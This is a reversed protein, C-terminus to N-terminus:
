GTAQVPDIERYRFLIQNFQGSIAHPLVTKECLVYRVCLEADSIDRLLTLTLRRGSSACQSASAPIAVIPGVIGRGLEGRNLRPKEKDLATPQGLASLSEGGM